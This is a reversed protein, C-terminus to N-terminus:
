DGRLRETRRREIERNACFKYDAEMDPQRMMWHLFGLDVEAWAKGRWESGIPCRPLLRPELSWQLMEEVSARVLLQQLIWATVYADPLARHPPHRTTPCMHQHLGLWYMLSQNGHHPAEPWVRLAAKYTCLWRPSLDGVFLTEYEANHAAYCEPEEGTACLEMAMVASPHSYPEQFQLQEPLIHHVAMVEPPCPREPRFLRSGLNDLRFRLLGHEGTQWCSLDVWGLEIVEAGEGPAMGTTEIDVVRIM